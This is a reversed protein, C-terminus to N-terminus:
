ILVFLTKMQAYQEPRRNSDSADIGKGYILESMGNIIANNTASGNYRDILYDFYMNDAGYAIWDEGRQEKIVPTTYGALNVIRIDSM